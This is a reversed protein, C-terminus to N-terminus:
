KKNNFFADLEELSVLPFKRWPLSPIELPKLVSFDECMEKIVRM